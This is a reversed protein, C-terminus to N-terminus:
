ISYSARLLLPCGKISRDIAEANQEEYGSENAAWQDLLDAVKQNRQLIMESFQAQTLNFRTRLVERRVGASLAAFVQATLEPTVEVSPNTLTEM